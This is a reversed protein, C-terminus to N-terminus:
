VLRHISLTHKMPNSEDCDDKFTQRVLSFLRLKTVLDVLDDPLLGHNSLETTLAIKFLKVPINDPHVFVLGRLLLVALPSQEKLREFSITWVTMVNHAYQNGSAEAVDELDLYKRQRIK